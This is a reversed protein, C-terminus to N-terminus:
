SSLHKVYKQWDDKCGKWFDTDSHFINSAITYTPVVFNRLGILKHMLHQVTPPSEDLLSLMNNRDCNTIGLKKLSQTIKEGEEVVIAFSARIYKLLEEITYNEVERVVPGMSTISQLLFKELEDHTTIFNMSKEDTKELFPCAIYRILYVEEEYRSYDEPTLDADTIKHGIRRIWEAFVYFTLHSVEILDDKTYKNM